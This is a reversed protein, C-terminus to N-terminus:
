GTPTTAKTKDCDTCKYRTAVRANHKQSPNVCEWSHSDGDKCTADANACVGCKRGAFGTSVFTGIERFNGCKKCFRVGNDVMYAVAVKVQKYPSLHAVDFPLSDVSQLAYAAGGNIWAAPESAGHSSDPGRVQQLTIEIGDVDFTEKKYTM